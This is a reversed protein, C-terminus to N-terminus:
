SEMALVLNTNVTPMEVWIGAAIYILPMLLWHFDSTTPPLLHLPAFFAVNYYLCHKQRRPRLGSEDQSHYISSLLYSCLCQGNRDSASFYFRTEGDKCHM